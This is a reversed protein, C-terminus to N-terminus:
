PLLVVLLLPPVLVLALTLALLLFIFYTQTVPPTTLPNPFPLLCLFAGVQPMRQMGMGERGEVTYLCRRSLCHIGPKGFGREGPRLASPAKTQAWGSGEMRAEVVGVGWDLVMRLVMM